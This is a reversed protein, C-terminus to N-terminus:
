QPGAPSEASEFGPNYWAHLFNYQRWAISILDLQGDQNLDVALAGLHSSRPGSDVCVPEWQNGGDRNLLIMTRNDDAVVGQQSDTLDSSCV